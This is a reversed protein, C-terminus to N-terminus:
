KEFKQKKTKPIGTISCDIGSLGLNTELIYEDKNVM